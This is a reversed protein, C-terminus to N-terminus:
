SCSQPTNKSWLNHNVGSSSRLVTCKMLADPCLIYFSRSFHFMLINTNKDGETGTRTQKTKAADAISLILPKSATAV